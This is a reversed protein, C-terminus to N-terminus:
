KSTITLTESPSNLDVNSPFDGFADFGIIERTEFNEYYERFSLFQILSSGKFVGFEAVEGPRNLIMKYLELHSIYESMRNNKCTLYFGNELDWNDVDKPLKYSNL